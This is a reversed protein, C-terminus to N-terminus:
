QKDKEQITLLQPKGARAVLVGHTDIRVVRYDRAGDGTGVIDGDINALSHTGNLIVARLRLPPPEIPQVPAAPSPPPPPPPRVFPDRLPRRAVAAVQPEAATAPMSCLLAVLFLARSM